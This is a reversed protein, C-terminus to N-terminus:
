KSMVQVMVSEGRDFFRQFDGPSRPMNQILVFVGYLNTSKKTEELCRKNPNVYFVQFLHIM